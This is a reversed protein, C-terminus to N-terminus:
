TPEHGTQHALQVLDVLPVLDAGDLALSVIAPHALRALWPPLALQPLRSRLDAHHIRVLLPARGSAEAPPAISVVYPEDHDAAQGLLTALPLATQGPAIRQLSQVAHQAVAYRRGGAVLILLPEDAM